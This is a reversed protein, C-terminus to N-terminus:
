NMLGRQNLETAMKVLDFEAWSNGEFDADTLTAVSSLWLAKQKDYEADVADLALSYAYSEVLDQDNNKIVAIVYYGVGSEYVDTCRGEDLSGLVDNLEESYAGVMGSQETSYVDVNYQKAIEKADQGANIADAAERAQALMEKKANDDLEIYQGNDDVKPQGEEDSEITPFVIYYLSQFNENKFQETYDATLKKGIENRTDNELKDVYCTENFVSTILEDTIEYEDFIDQPIYSKFSAMLKDRMDKDSDSFEMGQGLAVDYLVKNLRIEDLIAQRTAAEDALFDEYLMTGNLLQLLCYVMVENRNVDHTGVTLMKESITDTVNTNEESIETAQNNENNCGSLLGMCMAAICLTLTIKKMINIRRM